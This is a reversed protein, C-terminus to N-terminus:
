GVMTTLGPSGKSISPRATPRIRLVMSIYATAPLCCTAPTHRAFAGDGQARRCRKALRAQTELRFNLSLSMPSVIQVKAPARRAARRQNVPRAGCAARWGERAPECGRVEAAGAVQVGAGAARVHGPGLVAARRRRPPGQAHQTDDVGGMAGARGAAHHDGAAHGVDAGLEVPQDREFGHGGSTADADGRWRAAIERHWPGWRFRARTESTVIRAHVDHDEVIVLVGNALQVARGLELGVGGLDVGVGDLADSLERHAQAVGVHDHQDALAGVTERWSSSFSGRSFSIECVPRAPGWMSTAAQVSRPTATVSPTLEGMAGASSVQASIMAAMRRRGCYTEVRLCPAQCCDPM